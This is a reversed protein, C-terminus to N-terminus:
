KHRDEPRVIHSMAKHKGECVFYMADKRPLKEDTKFGGKRYELFKAANNLTIETGIIKEQWGKEPPWKLKLWGLQKANWGGAKSKGQELLEKTVKIM